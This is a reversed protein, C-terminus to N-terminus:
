IRLQFPIKFSDYMSKEVLVGVQVLFDYAARKAEGVEEAGPGSVEDGPKERRVRVLAERRGLAASVRPDPPVLQRRELVGGHGLERDRLVGPLVQVALHHAAQAAQPHALLLEHLLHHGLGAGAEGGAVVEKSDGHAHAVLGPPSKLPHRHRLDSAALNVLCFMCIGHAHAKCM